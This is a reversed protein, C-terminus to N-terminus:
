VLKDMLPLTAGLCWSTEFYIGKYELKKGMFVAHDPHLGFGHTLLTHMYTLDLCLLPFQDEPSLHMSPRAEMGRSCVRQAADVYSNIHMVVPSQESEILIGAEVARDYYYSILYVPEDSDVPPHPIGNFSCRTTPCKVTHDLIVNIVAKCAEHSANDAGEVDYDVDKFRFRARIGKPVCPSVRRSGDFTASALVQARAGMLGFGLYSYTYVNFHEKGYNITEIMEAPLNSKENDDVATTFQTSSGGLDLVPM